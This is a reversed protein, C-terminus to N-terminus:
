KKDNKKNVRGVYSFAEAFAIVSVFVCAIVISWTLEIPENRLNDIMADLAVFYVASEVAILSFIHFGKVHKGGILSVDLAIMGATLLILPMAFQTVWAEQGTKYSVYLTYGMIACFIIAGNVASRTIKLAPYVFIVWALMLAGVVIDFWYDYRHVLFDIVTCISAPFVLCASFIAAYSKAANSPANFFKRKPKYEMQAPSFVPGCDPCVSSGEALQKGCKPCYM